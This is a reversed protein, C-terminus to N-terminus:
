ENNYIGLANRAATQLSEYQAAARPPLSPTNHDRGKAYTHIRTYLVSDYGTRDAMYKYTPTYYSWFM